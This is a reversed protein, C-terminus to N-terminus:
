MKWSITKTNAKTMLIQFYITTIPLLALSPAKRHGQRGWGKTTSLVLGTYKTRYDEAEKDMHGSSKALAM